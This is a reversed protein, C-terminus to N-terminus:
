ESSPMDPKPRAENLLAVVVASSVKVAVSPETDAVRSRLIGIRLWSSLLNQIAATISRFSNVRARHQSVLCNFSSLYM